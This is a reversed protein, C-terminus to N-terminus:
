FASEAQLGTSTMPKLNGWETRGIETDTNVGELEIEEGIGGKRWHIEVEM